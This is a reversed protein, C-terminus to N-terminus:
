PKKVVLDNKVSFTGPVEKARIGAIDKDSQSDVVGVLTVNGNDVIIHISPIAGEGYRFLPSNWEYIKRLLAIRIRDDMPSPPLVKINNVVKKVGEIPEVVTQADSKLVPRTVAGTLTVTHGSVTYELDDFITYFPLMLLEHRVERIIYGESGVPPRTKDIAASPSALLLVGM